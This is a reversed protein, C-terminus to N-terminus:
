FDAPNRVDKGSQNVVNTFIMTTEVNKHESLEQLTRIEYDSELHHTAFSHRITHCSAHKTIGADRTGDGNRLDEEHIEKVKRLHNKLPEVIKQTVYYHSRKEKFNMWHIKIKDIARTSLSPYIETTKSSNRGLLEQIHRLVWGQEIMQKLEKHGLLEQVTRIYYGEARAPYHRSHLVKKLQYLLSPKLKISFSPKIVNRRDFPIQNSKMQFNTQERYEHLLATARRANISENSKNENATKALYSASYSLFGYNQSICELSLLNTNNESNM